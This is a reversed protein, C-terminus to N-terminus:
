RAPAHIACISVDYDLPATMSPGAAVQIRYSAGHKVGYVGALPAIAHPDACQGREACTLATGLDISPQDDSTLHLGVLATGDAFDVRVALEDADAGTAIQYSDLDTSAALTGHVRATAGDSLALGTPEPVVDDRGETYSPPATVRPCSEDLSIPALVLRYAFAPQPGHAPGGPLAATTEDASISAAGAALHVLYAGHDQHDARFWAHGGLDPEGAQGVASGFWADLDGPAYTRVLVDAGAGAGFAFTDADEGGGADGCITIPAGALALGTAEQTAFNQDDHQEVYDCGARDVDGLQMSADSESPGMTRGADPADPSPASTCAALALSVAVFRPSLM